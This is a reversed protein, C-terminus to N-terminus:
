VCGLNKKLDRNPLGGFDFNNEEADSNEEVNLPITAPTHRPKKDKTKPSSKKSKKVM